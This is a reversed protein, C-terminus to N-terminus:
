RPFLYLCRNVKLVRLRHRLRGLDSLVVNEGLSVLLHIWLLNLQNLIGLGLKAYSTLVQQDLQTILLFLYITNLELPVLVQCGSVLWILRINTLLILIFLRPHCNMMMPCTSTIDHAPIIFERKSDNFQNMFVM